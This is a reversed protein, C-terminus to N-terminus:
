ATLTSWSRVPLASNGWTLGPTAVAGLATVNQVSLSESSDEKTSVSIFITSPVTTIKQQM